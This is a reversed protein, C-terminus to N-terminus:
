QLHSVERSNIAQTPNEIEKEDKLSKQKLIKIKIGLRKLHQQHIKLLILWFCGWSVIKEIDSYLPNNNKLYTLGKCIKEPRVPESLFM